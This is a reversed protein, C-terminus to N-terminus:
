KSKPSAKDVLRAKYKMPSGDVVFKTKFVWKCKVLNRGPPLIVLDRTDNKQLSRFEEKLPQKGIQTNVHM